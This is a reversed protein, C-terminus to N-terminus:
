KLINPIDDQKTLILPSSEEYEELQQLADRVLNRIIELRELHSEFEEVSIRYDDM